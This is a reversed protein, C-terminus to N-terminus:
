NKHCDIQVVLTADPDQPLFSVVCKKGHNYTKLTHDIPIERAMNYHIIGVTEHPYAYSGNRNLIKQEPEAHDGHAYNKPFIKLLFPLANVTM